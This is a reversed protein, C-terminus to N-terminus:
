VDWNSLGKDDELFAGEIQYASTTAGFLFGDPFESKKLEEFSKVSSFLLLCLFFLSSFYNNRSEM